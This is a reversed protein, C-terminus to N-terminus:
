MSAILPIYFFALPGSIPIPVLCLIFAYLACMGRSTTTTTTNTTNTGDDGVLLLTDNPDHNLKVFLGHAIIVCVGYGLLFLGVLYNAYPFASMDNRGQQRRNYIHAALMNALFLGGLVSWMVSSSSRSAATAATAVPQSVLQPRLWTYALSGIAAGANLATWGSAFVVIGAM